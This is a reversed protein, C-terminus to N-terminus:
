LEVELGKAFEIIPRYDRDYHPWPRSDRRFALEDIDGTLYQLLVNQVDREFMEMAIVMNPRLRYMARVLQLHAAHVDPTQHLEGLAVADAAVLDRATDSVAMITDTGTAVIRPAAACGALLGALFVAVLQCNSRM